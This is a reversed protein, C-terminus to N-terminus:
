CSTIKFEKKKDWTYTAISFDVNMKVKIQECDVMLRSIEKCLPPLALGRRVEMVLEDHVPLIIHADINQTKFFRSVKVQAHKFLAAASGQILYDTAAYPRDLPVRLKRGFFNTVYGDHKADHTCKDMLIYFEPFDRKDREYGASVQDITLGLTRATQKLGAGYLMAFRANKARSRLASKLAADIEKEYIDGYFSRACSAHFDYGEDCLRFLRPIGTGQVALRMEIGSYDALLLVYGPRAKFCRRAPVTYVAGARVEKSINQLNPNESTERGTGAKNTRIDPHVIDQNDKADIYGKIIAVGKSYTRAKQICDVVPHNITLIAEKDTSDMEPFGLECFLYNKLQKESLLNIYHGVIKRTKVENGKLETEMFDILKKAQFIDLMFGRREMAVTTKILEIENEYESKPEVLPWFLNYLLAGRLGDGHQYTFMLEEPHKDYSGYIKKCKSIAKDAEEIWDIKGHFRNFLYDLGHNPCLNDIYQSMIMTDHLPKIPNIVFLGSVTFHLEFKLNHAVAPCPSAWFDALRSRFNGTTRAVEKEEQYFRVAGSERWVETYGDSCWTFSAAFIRGERAYLSITEYDANIVDSPLFPRPQNKM